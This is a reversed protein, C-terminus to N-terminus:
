GRLYEADRREVERRMRLALARRREARRIYPEKDSASEAMSDWQRADGNLLNACLILDSTTMEFAPM